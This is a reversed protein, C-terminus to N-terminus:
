HGYVGKEDEAAPLGVNFTVILDGERADTFQILVTIRYICSLLGISVPCYFELYTEIRLVKLSYWSVVRRLM